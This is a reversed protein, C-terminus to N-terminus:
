FRGSLTLSGGERGVSPALATTPPSGEGDDLVAFIVATTATALSGVLLVDTVVALTDARDAADIADDYSAQKAVPAQADRSLTSYREFDSEAGLALIGTITAGALMAVSLGGLVWVHTPLSVEDIPQGSPSAIRESSRPAPEAAAESAPPAAEPTTAAVVGEAPGAAGAAVVSSGPELVVELELSSGGPVTFSRQVSQYGDLRVELSHAGAPLQIPELLPARRQEGGDFTVIAGDPTVRVIVSGLQKRLRETAAVVEQRQATTPVDSALFQDFHFLAELPKGLKDYCNAINVRVLPHPRLRFAEQFSALAEAYRAGEYAAVGREFLSKARARADDTPEGAAPPPASGPTTPTSRPASGPTQAAALAPVCLAAVLVILTPTSRM